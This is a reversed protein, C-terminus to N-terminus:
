NKQLFPNTKNAPAIAKAVNIASFAVPHALSSMSPANRRCLLPPCSRRDKKQKKDHFIREM